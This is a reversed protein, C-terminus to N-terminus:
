FKRIIFLTGLILAAALVALLTYQNTKSGGAITDGFQNNGQLGSTASSSLSLALGLDTGGM